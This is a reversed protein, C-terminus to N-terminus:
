SGAFRQQIARFAAEKNGTQVLCRVEAQAARAALSPTTASSALRAYAAAAESWRARSAELARAAEWAPRDLDGDIALGRVPAPYAPFGRDDLLIVSDALGDTVIK